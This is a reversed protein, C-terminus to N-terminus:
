NDTADEIEDGIREAPTRDKLERAADDVGDDLSDVADGIHEGPTRTDEMTMFGYAGVAVIAVVVAGLLWKMGDKNNDM